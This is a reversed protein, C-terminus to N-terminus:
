YIFFIMITNNQYIYHYGYENWNILTNIDISTRVEQLCLIDPEQEEILKLLPLNPKLLISRIGNINFSILKM